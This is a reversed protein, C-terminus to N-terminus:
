FATVASLDRREDENLGGWVGFEPSGLAYELCEQRVRCQSCIRKAAAERVQRRDASESSTPFFLVAEPGRCAASADWSSRSSAVKM